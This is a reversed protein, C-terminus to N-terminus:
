VVATMKNDGQWLLLNSPYSFCTMILFLNTIPLGNTLKLEGIETIIESRFVINLMNLERVNFMM